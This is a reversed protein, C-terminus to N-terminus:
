EPVLPIDPILPADPWIPSLYMVVLEVYSVILVPLLVRVTPVPNAYLIPCSITRANSASSM